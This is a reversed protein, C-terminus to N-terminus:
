GLHRGRDACGLGDGCGLDLIRLGAPQVCGLLTVVMELQAQRGPNGATRNALWSAVTEPNNWDQVIPNM